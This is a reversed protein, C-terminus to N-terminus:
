LIEHIIESNYKRTGNYQYTGDYKTLHKGVTLHIQYQPLFAETEQELRLVTQNKQETQVDIKWAIRVNRSIQQRAVDYMEIRPLNNPVLQCDSLVSLQLPYLDIMKDTKYGNYKYRGYPATGDYMLYPLNYRPYFEGKFTLLSEMRIKVFYSDIYQRIMALYLHAPLIDRMLDFVMEVARPRDSIIRIELMCETPNVCLLYGDEGLVANLRNRLFWITFPPLTNLKQLVRERRYDLSEGAQNRIEMWGEYDSIIEKDATKIFHNQYVEGMNKEVKELMNGEVAMIQKFEEIQQFWEPLMM